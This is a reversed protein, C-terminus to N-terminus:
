LRVLFLTNTMDSSTLATQGLDSTQKRIIAILYSLCGSKPGAKSLFLCEVVRRLGQKKQSFDTSRKKLMLYLNDGNQFGNKINTYTKKKIATLNGITFDRKKNNGWYKPSKSFCHNPTHKKFLASQNQNDNAVLIFFVYGLDTNKFIM